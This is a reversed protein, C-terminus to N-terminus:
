LMNCYLYVTNKTYFSCKCQKTVFIILICWFCTLTTHTVYIHWLECSTESLILWRFAMHGSRFSDFAKWAFRMAWFSTWFAAGDLDIQSSEVKLKWSLSYDELPSWLTSQHLCISFLFFSKQRCLLNVDGNEWINNNSLIPSGCM